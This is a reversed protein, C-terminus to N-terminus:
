KILKGRVANLWGPFENMMAMLIAPKDFAEFGKVALFVANDYTRGELDDLQSLFPFSSHAEAESMLGGGKHKSDVGIFQFFIPYDAAKTIASKAASQDSNEGDTIFIVFTPIDQVSGKTGGYDTVLLNIIPAYETGGFQHVYSGFM